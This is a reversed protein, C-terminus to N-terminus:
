YIHTLGLIFIFQMCNFMLLANSTERIKILQMRRQPLLILYKQQQHRSLPPSSSSYSILYTLKLINIEYFNKYHGQSYEFM